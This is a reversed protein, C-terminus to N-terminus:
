WSFKELQKTSIAISDDFGKSVKKDRLNIFTVKEGENTKSDVETYVVTAQIFHGILENVDIDEIDQNDLALRALYSFANMATTNPKGDRELNYREIHRKGDNTEFTITVKGFEDDYEANVIKFNYIGQKIPEYTNTLSIRM